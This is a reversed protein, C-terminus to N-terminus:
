TKIDASGTNNLWRDLRRACLHRGSGKAKVAVGLVAVSWVLVLVMRLLRYGQERTLMPFVKKRIVERFLLLFVGLAIGGIGAVQGVVRLVDATM